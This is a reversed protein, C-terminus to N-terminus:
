RIEVIRTTFGDIRAKDSIEVGVVAYVENGKALVILSDRLRVPLKIDTLYDGLSKTGGGFRKFIDGERKLRFVAGSVKDYDVFLGEGRKDASRVIVTSEGCQYSRDPADLEVEFDAKQQKKYVVIRDYERTCVTDYPMDFSVGNEASVLSKVIEVHREEIDVTVGLNYFARRILREGVAPISLDSLTIGWAGDLPLIKEGVLTDFYEEDRGSSLSLRRIAKVASPYREKIREMLEHRIFNRTYDLCENTEDEFYPIGNQKIYEDIEERTVDLLPRIYRDRRDSIGMLGKVGTGRFIRMLVTEANDDAHHATAVCDCFGDNLAEEFCRYRLERASQEVTLKNERAYSLADVSFTRCEVKLSECYEKVGRCESKSVEGRIGHEVCIAKVTFNHSLLSHLLAMSDRGGSLAVAIVADEPILGVNIKM